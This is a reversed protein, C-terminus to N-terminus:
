GVYVGGRRSKDSDGSSFVQDILEQVNYQCRPCTKLTLWCALHFLTRCSPSPCYAIFEGPQFPVLDTRNNAPCHVGSRRLTITHDERVEIVDHERAEYRAFTVRSSLADMVRAQAPYECTFTPCKDVSFWCARHTPMACRPCFFVEDGLAFEEKCMECLRGIASDEASLRKIRLEWMKLTTQGLQIEDRQHLVQLSVVRQGNIRTQQGVLDVLVHQRNMVTRMIVAHLPAVGLEAPLVLDNTSDSGIRINDRFSQEQYQGDNDYYILVPM